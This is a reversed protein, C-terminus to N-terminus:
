KLIVMARVASKTECDLRYFYVGSSLGSADFTREYTGPALQGNQLTAVERGFVDFVKLSVFSSHGIVFSLSTTPNFPNPYNQMLAFEAPESLSPHASTQNCIIQNLKQWIQNNFVNPVFFSTDPVEGMRVVVLNQSPVVNIIQGNKGLAAIMDRPAEPVLAGPFIIQSQPQMYSAKGNLWWLYGYSLNINQSSNTMRRFYSTDRMLTDANWIGKNLILLGYRAMSRPTSFYVNNYGSPLWLGTMGTRSKVKSNFYVNFSQGTAGEVVRDLLTYPANHYAWRTGADAQYLLCGPLTCDPDSVLDRLGTTMTLQNLVTILGEKNTPASTWGQSLFKSTSDSLALLREHQAIGVIFSTVSKGASAWYWISDRTFTGFYKELVIKGDKLVIFAKSNKNQLFGYLTDINQVCWGLSAPSTTEWATGTLPPFYLSQSKANTAFIVILVVLAASTALRQIM